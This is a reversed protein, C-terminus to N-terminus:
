LKEFTVDAPMGIKLALDPNAISLRVAFVTAKRGDVTQVNRPTFEAKDAINIVTGTFERGPFSDVTVKAEQGLKIEGYRDEPVYVVININELLGASMVQAGAQVVEGPEIGRALLVGSSPARVLLKGLQIDILDLAAQSQDVASQTQKLRAQAQTLGAQAQLIAAEAQKPAAEISTIQAQLAAVDEARPGDKVAELDNLAKDRRAIAQNLITELELRRVAADYASQADDLADKLKKRTSDGSPAFKYPEFASRAADLRTKMVDVAEIASLGQQETPITFNDLQYQADRVARTATALAGEANSKLMGASDELDQLANKASILQAESSAKAFDASTQAVQLAAQAADIGAQAVALNDLASQLATTAQKRQAQLMSDDMRFLVDGAKFSDGENVMIEAVKGSIEPAIQVEIAEITGSAALTTRNLNKQATYLRSGVAAVVIISLFILINRIRAPIKSM